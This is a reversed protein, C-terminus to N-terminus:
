NRVRLERFDLSNKYNILGRLVDSELRDDGEGVAQALLIDNGARGDMTDDGVGDLLVDNQGAAEALPTEYVRNGVSDYDYQVGPEGADADADLTITVMAPGAVAEGDSNEYVAELNLDTTADVDGDSVVSFDISQQGKELTLTVEGDAFSLVDGDLRVAITEAGEGGLTLIIQDGAKAPHNLEVRFPRAGGEALTTSDAGNDGESFPGPTLTINREPNLEIGLDGNRFHQITIKDGAELAEGAIELTGGDELNGDVLTYVYGDDEWVTRGGQIRSAEETGTLENEGIRLRDHTDDESDGEASLITDQGDGPNFVYVDAGAGGVLFDNNEGGVLWDEGDGGFLYDNGAEGWLIDNGGAGKLLDIGGQGLMLENVQEGDGLAWGDRESSVLAESIPSLGSGVEDSGMLIDRFDITQGLGAELSEAYHEILYDYAPQFSEELTSVGGSLATLGPDANAFDVMNGSDAGSVYAPAGAGFNAEYRLIREQHEAYMQYVQRAQDDTLEVGDDYLGFIESEVFRRKAIGPDSGGNSYYRIQFWAEARDGDEIGAKLGDGLLNSPGTVSNYTLSFLVARERSNPIDALWNDINTEYADALVGFVSESQAETLTFTTPGDYEPHTNAWDDLVADLDAQLEENTTAQTNLIAADLEDRLAFDAGGIGLEAYRAFREPEENLNFGVGITPQPNDANDFYAEPYFGEVSRILDYRLQNYNIGETTYNLAM